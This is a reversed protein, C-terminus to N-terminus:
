AILLVSGSDRLAERTVPEFPTESGGEWSVDVRVDSGIVNGFLMALPVESADRGSAIRLFGNLPARRTGDFLYWIGDAYVEFAAHFDAPELGYAYATVYRAPVNLARCFTIGLHAFDRCVGARSLLTDAGSTGESSVGSVYTVNEFLWDEVAEAIACAGELHGFLDQSVSRLLDTPVYRSPFLYPFEYADATDVGRLPISDKAVLRPHTEVRAEHQIDLDGPEPFNLRTFPNQETGVLLDFREAEASTTIVEDVVHQSSTESCRVSFLVTAPEYACYHLSSRVRFSLTDTM